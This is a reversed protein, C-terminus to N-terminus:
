ALAAEMAVKASNLLKGVVPKDEKPLTGMQKLLATLSGNAGLFHAKAQELAPLNPAARFAETASDKLPEIENLLSM